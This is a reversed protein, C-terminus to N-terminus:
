IGEEKIRSKLVRAKETIAEKELLAKGYDRYTKDQGGMIELGHLSVWAALPSTDGVAQMFVEIALLSPVNPSEPNLWKELTDLSITKASGQTMRVGAERAINNMAEVIQVRSLPSAAAARNMAARLVTTLGAIHSVRRNETEFFSLQRM